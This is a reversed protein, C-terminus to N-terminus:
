RLERKGDIMGHEFWVKGPNQLAPLKIEPSLLFIKLSGCGGTIRLEEMVIKISYIFVLLSWLSDRPHWGTKRVWKRKNNLVGVLVTFNKTALKTLPM